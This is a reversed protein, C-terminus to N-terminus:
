NCKVSANQYSRLYCLERFSILNTILNTLNTLNKSNRKRAQKQQKEVM